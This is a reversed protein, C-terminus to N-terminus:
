NNSKKIHLPIITQINNKSIYDQNLIKSPKYVPVGNITKGVKSSSDDAFAVIDYYCSTDQELAKKTIIGADGAGYIITKIPDQKHSINANYIRRIILRSFTMSIFTLMAVFISETYSVFWYNIAISTFRVCVYKAMFVMIFMGLCVFGIKKIDGFGSYRVLGKYSDFIFSNILFALFMTVLHPIEAVINLDSLHYIYKVFIYIWFSVFFLMCDFLLVLWKSFSRSAYRGRFLALALNKFLRRM